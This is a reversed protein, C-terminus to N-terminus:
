NQGTKFNIENVTEKIKNLIWAQAEEGYIFRFAVVQSMLIVYEFQEKDIFMVGKIQTIDSVNPWSGCNLFLKTYRIGNDNWWEQLKDEM